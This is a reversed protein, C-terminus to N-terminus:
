AVKVELTRLKYCAGHGHGVSRKVRNAPLRNSAMNMTEVLPPLLVKAAHFNVLIGELKTVLAELQLSNVRSPGTVGSKKFAVPCHKFGVITTRQHAKLRTAHLKGFPPAKLM